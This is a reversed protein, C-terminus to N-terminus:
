AGSSATIARAVNGWREQFGPDQLWAMGAFYAIARTAVDGLRDVILTPLEEWSGRVVFHQLLDDDIVAAMGALDGAKQRERIRATTGEFGIQDFIFAYNPTSGYFAVQMRAMEWWRQQEETTDGVATFVPVALEVNEGVCPLVTQALYTPTNLPHVHVGDAVEGAMRLMWPSVAAVDIPPDPVDIPGPSWQAPLLSFSWYSGSFDLREHDRFARFIARVAEVYERLRPGPPDFPAAYRREIHARVQTGLGLRFRGGSLEALEWASQATVMPSRPFAVAIGTSIDIDAALAAAACALYGTRAGETVVLGSFGASAADRALDQIRRLPAGTTMLEFRM